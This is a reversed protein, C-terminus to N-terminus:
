ESHLSTSDEDLAEDNTLEAVAKKLALRSIAVFANLDMLAFVDLEAGIDHRGKVGSSLRIARVLENKLHPTATLMWTVLLATGYDRASILVQYEKLKAHEVVLFDRCRGSLARLLGTDISQMEWSLDAADVIALHREVAALLGLADDGVGEILQHSQEAIGYDTLKM